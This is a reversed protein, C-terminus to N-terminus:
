VVPPAAQFAVAVVQHLLPAMLYEKLFVAPLTEKLAMVAQAISLVGWLLDQRM